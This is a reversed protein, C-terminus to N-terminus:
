SSSVYIAFRYDNLYKAPPGEGGGLGGGLFVFFNPRKGNMWTLSGVTICNVICLAGGVSGAAAAAEEEEEEEEVEEEETDTDAQAAFAAVNLDTTPMCYHRLIAEISGSSLRLLDKISGECLRLLAKM